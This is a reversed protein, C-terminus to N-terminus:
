LIKTTKLMISPTSIDHFSNHKEKPQLGQGPSMKPLNQLLLRPSQLEPLPATKNPLTPKRTDNSSKLNPNSVPVPFPAVDYDEEVNHVKKPKRPVQSLKIVPKEQTVRQYPEFDTQAESNLSFLSGKPTDYFSEGDNYSSPSPSRNSNFSPFNHPSSTSHYVEFDPLIDRPNSNQTLSNAFKQSFAKPSPPFDYVADVVTVKSTSTIASTTTNLTSVTVAKRGAPSLSEVIEEKKEPQLKMQESSKNVSKAM